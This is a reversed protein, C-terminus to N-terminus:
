TSLRSHSFLVLVQSKFNPLRVACFYIYAHRVFIAESSNLILDFVSFQLSLWCEDFAVVVQLNHLSLM